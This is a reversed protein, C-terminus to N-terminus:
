MTNQSPKHLFKAIRTMLKYELAKYDYKIVEYQLKSYGDKFNQAREQVTPQSGHANFFSMDSVVMSLSGLARLSYNLSYSLRLWIPSFIGHMLSLKM